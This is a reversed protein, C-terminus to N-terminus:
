KSEKERVVTMIAVAKELKAKFLPSKGFRENLTEDTLVLPKKSNDVSATKM